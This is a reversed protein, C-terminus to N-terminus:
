YLYGVQTLMCTSVCCCLLHLVAFAAVVVVAAVVVALFIGLTIIYVQPELVATIKVGDRITLMDRNTIM